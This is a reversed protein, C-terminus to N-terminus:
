EVNQVQERVREISRKAEIVVASGTHSTIKSGITTVERLLEQSLFELTKGQGPEPAAALVARAQGLHSAIRALEEAVDGRTLLLALEQALRERDVTGADVRALVADCRSALQALLREAEGALSAEIRVVQQELEALSATLVQALAEGEATRMAVLKALADEVLEDLFAPAEQAPASGPGRDPMGSLLFRLLELTNPQVVQFSARHAEDRVSALADLITALKEREIGLVALPDGSDGSSDAGDVRIALDVRGRGLRAEALRRVRHEVAAGFPMRLKLELYRANVSRLEVHVRLGREPWAREAVGFGTMSLIPMAAYTGHKASRWCTPTSEARSSASAPDLSGAMPEPEPQTTLVWGACFLSIAREYVLELEYEADYKALMRDIADCHPESTEPVLLESAYAEIHNPTLLSLLLIVSSM